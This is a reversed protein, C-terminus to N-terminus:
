WAGVVEDGFRAVADIRVQLDEPDGGYLWWPQVIVETAGADALRRYGDLDFADTSVVKYAFGGDPDRGEAELLSRLEAIMAAAEETTNGSSVWGDGLRAARRLAPKTTGGVIIPVPESPWPAMMLRDFDYHEGHHEVWGGALLKRIIEVAEDTRAARSDFDESLFRFEEPMWSLGVGLEVRNGSLVAATGVTRAVLLPQRIPLKLVMTQFRLRETVAAMAPIVVWPEPMPTEAPWFRSGDPNPSYPYRATVVEPYFPGDPVAFGYFGADDAAKALPLYHSLDCMALAVSFRM